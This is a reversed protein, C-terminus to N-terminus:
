RAPSPVSPVRRQQFRDWLDKAVYGRLEVQPRLETYSNFLPVYLDRKGPAPLEYLKRLLAQEVKPSAIIIPAAPAEEDVESWWGVNPFSRLYWPLPWYDGGPCIVEVTLDYGDPHSDALGAVRRAIDVVHTSTPAYVYPNAPDAYYRYNARCAQWTLHVGGAVLLLGILLRPLRNAQYRLLAMAGVGALLVMGHLFGLLNWPTKYPIISYLITMILTYFAIFRFLHTNGDSVGRGTVAVGIGVVALM